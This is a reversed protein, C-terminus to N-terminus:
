FHHAVHQAFQEVAVQVRQFRHAIDTDVIQFAQVGGQFPHFAEPYVLDAETKLASPDKSRRLVVSASVAKARREHVKRVCREESRGPPWFGERAQRLTTPGAKEKTRPLDM